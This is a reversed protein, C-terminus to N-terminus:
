SKDQQGSSGFIKEWLSVGPGPLRRVTLDSILRQQNELQGQLWAKDRELGAIREKLMAIEGQADAAPAAQQPTEPKTGFGYVRELETVPVGKSGDGLDVASVKGSEIHRYITQRGKGVLRAAESISVASKAKKAM